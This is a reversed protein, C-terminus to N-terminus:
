ATRVIEDLMVDVTRQARGDPTFHIGCEKGDSMGGENEWWWRGARIDEGASTARTCPECGISTYGKAYLPHVPLEHEATYRDVDESSWYALPNIRIPTGLDDIQEISERSESQDRRLGTLLAQIAHGKEALKRAMPRVKRVQCCLMRSPRDHFFLNPGYLEVMREAEDPNPHIMEVSVGYRSRVSEIMTYTEEPLRGTDLTFIRLSPQLRIAIDLVIMGGKQLSSSLALHAGFHDIAWGIIEEATKM